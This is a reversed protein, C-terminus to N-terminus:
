EQGCPSVMQIKGHRWPNKGFYHFDAIRLNDSSHRMGDAPLRYSKALEKSLGVGKGWWGSRTSRQRGSRVGYGHYGLDTLRM